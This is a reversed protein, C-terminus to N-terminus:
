DQEVYGSLNLKDKSIWNPILASVKANAEESTEMSVFNETAHRINRTDLFQKNIDKLDYSICVTHRYGGEDQPVNYARQEASRYAYEVIRNDLLIGM